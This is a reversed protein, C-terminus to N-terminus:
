TAEYLGLTELRYNRHTDTVPIPRYESKATVASLTIIRSYHTIVSLSGSCDKGKAPTVKVKVDVRHPIGLIEDVVTVQL